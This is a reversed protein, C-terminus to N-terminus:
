GSQARYGARACPARCVAARPCRLLLAFDAANLFLLRVDPQIAVHQLAHCLDGGLRGSPVQLRADQMTAFRLSESLQRMGDIVKQVHGIRKQPLHARISILVTALLPISYSSNTNEM